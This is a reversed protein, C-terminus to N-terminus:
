DKDIAVFKFGNEKAYQEATSGSYGEIVLYTNKRYLDNEMCYGISIEALEVDKSLITIKNLVICEFFAAYGISKVNQPIIVENLSSDNAFAYDGIKIINNHTQISNIVIKTLSFCDSFAQDGIQIINNPIIIETLASCNAFAGDGIKTVSNPINIQILSSCAYFTREGIKTVSNPIVIETLSSCYAFAWDGIRTISNPIIIETLSSCSLFTRNEIQTISNPIIIKILSSCDFFASEEIQTVSDPIDIKILSSCDSFASNGIQTISNPIVIKTLSSCNSFASYVIKTISNPIVIEMLSSCHSFACNGIQTISNPIIIKTLSSCDFFACNGIETASNPIVIETLSSCRFFTWDEIRTISNSIVIQTLSSCDSFAYNGIQTVSDPIIVQTLSLCGSFAYNGIQTVSNPIVIQVLSSCDSFAYNGIQTVSDPIVIEALSTCNSFANTGIQTINNPIVIKPLHSYEFFMGYEIKKINKPITIEMLSINNIKKLSSCGLLIHYGMEKCTSPIIIETLLSCGSFAYNGIHTVSNPIVIETLSSCDHFASSGIETVGNPLIIQTLSSCGSFAYDGIKTISCPIVIENLLSCDSFASNGIQTISDPIIIQTLSSCTDFTWNSIQTISNPISLKTLSSCYAFAKEGMKTVSNPIVIETLSSCGSFAGDGIYTISNPLVMEKLLFCNFFASNGIKSIGNPIVIETLSSCESFAGDGIQIVSDPIIMKTLLSCAYFTWDGIKTVGKPISIKTLSSCNLFARNGIHTVNNSIVIETLSYCGAFAKDGITTVSNPIVIKTLSSCCLFASNGIQILSNPLVVETLSLYSFAEDGVKTVSDPIVIKTLFLDEDKDHFFNEYDYVYKCSFANNSIEIINNAINYIEEIGFYSLLCNDQTVIAYNDIYYDRNPLSIYNIIYKIKGYFTNLKFFLTYVLEEQNKIYIGKARNNGWESILDLFSIYFKRCKKDTLEPNLENSVIDCILPHLSIKTENHDTYIIWGSNTLDEISDDICDNSLINDFNDLKIFNSFTVIDLGELPLLCANVMVYKEKKSLNDFDFLAKIHDYVASMTISEDDKENTIRSQIHSNMGHEKLVSLYEELSKKYKKSQLAILKITMTHYYAVEIINDVLTKRKLDDKQIPNVKFFLQELESKSMDELKFIHAKDLPNMRTTFIIHIHLKKLQSITAFNKKYESSTPDPNYDYNDIILLTNTGYINTNGLLGLKYSYLRDIDQDNQALRDEDKLGVFDINAITRKLNDSYFVLQIFDYKDAYLEAYERATESKGSGRIAYLYLIHYQNLKKYIDECAGTRSVYINKSTCPSINQNKLYVEVRALKILRDLDDILEKVSSYRDNKNIALTKRFIEIIGNQLQPVVNEFYKNSNLHWIKNKRLDENTTNRGMIKEFIVAGISFIDSREDIDTYSGYYEAASIIEPAAYKNSYSFEEPRINNKHMVSDFDFLQIIQDTEPFVFFNHPKIDLLLLNKQHYLRVACSLARITELVSLINKPTVKDYSCGNSLHMAIYLTNNLKYLKQPEVTYNNTKEDNYIELQTQFAQQWRKKYYEFFNKSAGPSTLSNDNDRFISLGKPYLEKLAIKRGDLTAEYVISSTGSGIFKDILCQENGFCLITGNALPNRNIVINM